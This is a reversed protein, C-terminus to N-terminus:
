VASQGAGLAKMFLALWDQESVGLYQPGGAYHVHIRQALGEPTALVDKMEAELDLVAREPYVFFDGTLFARRIRHQQEDLQLSARLLGGPAKHSAELLRYGGSTPPRRRDIWEPLRYRDQSAEWEAQEEETLAGPELRVGMVAEVSEALATKVEDMMPPQNLLEAMTVMRERFSRAVKDTMKEIPLKLVKLMTDLDFDVLLTGQYILASGWAAGGTGSIKRGGVEVDNVPRFRADIGWRSLARMVVQSLQQYIADHNVAAALSDQRLCFEWGLQRSDMYIAGGGTIRRNIEVGLDQCINRNLERDVAQHYGVLATHPNFQMFRFTNPTRGAAQHRIVVEDLAMQRWAPLPGPDLM